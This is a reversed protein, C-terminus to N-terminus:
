ISEMGLEDLGAIAQKTVGASREPASISSLQSFPESVAVGRPFIFLCYCEYCINQLAPGTPLTPAAAEAQPAPLTNGRASYLTIMNAISCLWASLCSLIGARM